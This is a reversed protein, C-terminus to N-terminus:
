FEFRVFNSSTQQGDITYDARMRDIGIFTLKVTGVKKSGFDAPNFSGGIPSGTSEYLNSHYINLAADEWQGPVITYWIPKRAADYGYIGGGLDRTSPSQFLVVSSGSEAPNYWLGSHDLPNVAENFGGILRSRTSPAVYFDVSALANESATGLVVGYDGPPLRGLYYTYDIPEGGASGISGGPIIRFQNRPTTFAGSREYVVIGEVFQDGPEGIVRIHVPENQVPDPPIVTMRAASVVGAFATSLVTLLLTELKM